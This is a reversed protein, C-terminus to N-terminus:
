KTSLVTIFVKHINEWETRGTPHISQNSGSYQLKSLSLLRVLSGKNYMGSGSSLTCLESKLSRTRYEMKLLFIILDLPSYFSAWSWVTLLYPLWYTLEPHELYSTMDMVSINGLVGPAAPLNQNLSNRSVREVTSGKKPIWMNYLSTLTADMMEWVQRVMEKLYNKQLTM